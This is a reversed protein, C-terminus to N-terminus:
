NNNMSSSLQDPIYAGVGDAKTPSQKRLSFGIPDTNIQLEVTM